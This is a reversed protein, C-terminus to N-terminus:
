LKHWNQMFPSLPKIYDCFHAFFHAFKWFTLSISPAKRNQLNYMSHGIECNKSLVMRFYALVDKGLRM